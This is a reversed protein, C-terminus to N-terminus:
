YTVLKDTLWSSASTVGGFADSSLVILIKFLLPFRFLNLVALVVFILVSRRQTELCPLRKMTM